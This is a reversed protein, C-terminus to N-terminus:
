ACNSPGRRSRAVLLGLLPMLLLYSTDPAAVTTRGELQFSAEQAAATFITSDGAPHYFANGAFSDSAAWYIEGTDSYSQLTLWYNTGPSATIETPLEFGVVIEAFPGITGGPFDVTLDSGLIYGSNSTDTYDPTGALEPYIGYAIGYNLLDNYGGQDAYVTFKVGTITTTATFSFDDEGWSAGDYIPIGNPNAIDPPGNDFIIGASATGMSVLMTLLTLATVIRKTM